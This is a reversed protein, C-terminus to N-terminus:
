ESRREAFFVSLIQKEKIRFVRALKAVTCYKPQVVGGHELNQLQQASVGLQEAQKKMSLGKKKRLGRLHEGFEWRSMGAVNNESAAKM